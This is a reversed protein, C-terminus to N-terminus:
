AKEFAALTKLADATDGLIAKDLIGQKCKDLNALEAEENKRANTHPDDFKFADVVRTYKNLDKTPFLKAKGSRIQAMKEEFSLIKLNYRQEIESHKKRYVEDLRKQFYTLQQKNM